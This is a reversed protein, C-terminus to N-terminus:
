KVNRWNSPVIFREDDICFQDFDVDVISNNYDSLIQILQGDNDIGVIIKSIEKLSRAYGIAMKRVSTDRKTAFERLYILHNRIEDFYTDVEEAEMLLLGQLFISRIHIEVGRDCLEKVMGCKVFRQDLINCPIQILDINYREIISKAQEVFSVSVGIKDVFGASKAEEMRGFVEDRRSEQILDNPDHILVGYLKKVGLNGISSQIHSAVCKPNESGKNLFVKTVINFDSILKNKGLIIESCGYSGATDIYKIGNENAIKLIKGVEEESVKGYKNAIGYKQGFQATGIM